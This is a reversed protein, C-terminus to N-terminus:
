LIEFFPLFFFFGYRSFYFVHPPKPILNSRFRPEGDKGTKHGQVRGRDNFATHAPETHTRPLFVTPGMERRVDQLAVFATFLPAVAQWSCGPVNKVCM